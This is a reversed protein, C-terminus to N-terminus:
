SPSDNEQKMIKEIQRKEWKKVFYLNNKFTFLAHIAVGAGWFLINAKVWNFYYPKLNFNAPLLQYLWNSNLALLILNVGIFVYLHSYFGKLQKVRKVARNYKHQYPQM